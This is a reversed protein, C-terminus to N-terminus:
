VLIYRILRVKECDELAEKYKQFKYLLKMRKGLIKVSVNNNCKVAKNYEVLAGKLNNAAEFAKATEEHVRPDNPSYVAAKEYDALAKAHENM